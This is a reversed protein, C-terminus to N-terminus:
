HAIDSKALGDVALLVNGIKGLRFYSTRGSDWQVKIREDGVEVVVGADKNHPRKVRRGTTWAINRPPPRM